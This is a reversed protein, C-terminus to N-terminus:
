ALLSSAIFSAMSRCYRVYILSDIGQMSIVGGLMGNGAEMILDENGIKPEQKEPHHRREWPERCM